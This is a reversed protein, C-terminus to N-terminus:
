KFIKEEEKPEKEDSVDHDMVLSSLFNSDCFMEDGFYQINFEKFSVRLINKSKSFRFYFMELLVDM